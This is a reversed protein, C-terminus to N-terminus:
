YDYWSGVSVTRNAGIGGVVIQRSCVADGDDDWITQALGDKSIAEGYYPLSEVHKKAENISAFQKGYAKYKM